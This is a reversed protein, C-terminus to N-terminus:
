FNFKYVKRKFKDKYKNNRQIVSFAEFKDKINPDLYKFLTNFMKDSFDILKLDKAKKFNRNGVNIKPTNLLNNLRRIKDVGYNKNTKERFNEFGDKIPKDLNFYQKNGHFENNDILQKQKNYLNVINKEFEIVELYKKAISNLYNINYRARSLFHRVRILNRAPLIYESTNNLILYVEYAVLLFKLCENLLTINKGFEIKEDFVETGDIMQPPNLPKKNIEYNVYSEYDKIILHAIEIYIGSTEEILKNLKILFENNIDNNKIRIELLNANNLKFFNTSDIIIEIENSILNKQYSKDEVFSKDKNKNSSFGNKFEWDKIVDIKYNKKRNKGKNDSSKNLINKGKNFLKNTPSSFSSNNKNKIIFDEDIINNKNTTSSNNFLSIKNPNIKTSKVSNDISTQFLNKYIIQNDFNIKIESKSKALQKGKMNSHNNNALNTISYRSQILPFNKSSYLNTKKNAELISKRHYNIEDQLFKKKIPFEKLFNSMATTLPIDNNTKYIRKLSKNLIKSNFQTEKEKNRKNNIIESNKSSM